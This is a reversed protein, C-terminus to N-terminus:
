INYKHYTPLVYSLFVYTITDCRANQLNNYKNSSTQEYKKNYIKDQM